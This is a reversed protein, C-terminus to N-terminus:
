HLLWLVLLGVAVGGVFLATKEDEHKRMGEDISKGLHCCSWANFLRSKTNIQATPSKMSTNIQAYGPVRVDCPMSSSSWSEDM